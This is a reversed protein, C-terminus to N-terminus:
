EGAARRATFVAGTYPELVLGRLHGGEVRPMGAHRTGPKGEIRREVIRPRAAPQELGPEVRECTKRDDLRIVHTGDSWPVAIDLRHRHDSNNLVVVVRESGLTRSFAYLGKEDDMRLTEMTGLQLAPCTHRIAIMWRYHELVDAEIREEPDDNPPLDDWLMPKRCSPDDAGYMGVEDGYYVMPAGLATMQFTVLLKLRKYCDATPKAPNYNPGNDQLRNAQDYELDPNMFMSAVRDTDHSDFLNQLVYNVQPAYWGQMEKLQRDFETATIRKAHNVFFRQCSRAFPYNMVADFSRGDLWERSEQWLEAVIYADPNISKVLTRWDKWFNVNIDSAVDLRWGDIGDSPDGDGNPDMWRRTVAFLHERVEKALGLADDHKLRPLAGDDGDWAQYHFPKFSKIDFWGAYRSNKGHKLVDQFAWFERGVHNFVGDLIVKFGMRHAEALFELFVLDTKSWQWTAPDTTEGRVDKLSGKVGFFDDIHRFDSADYKHLSQAQFVPNFYIATIGLSRLYGLKERVGQLDGGYRRDYIFEEFTGRETYGQGGRPRYPKFWAHNWPVTSPPDNSPDGNRFREPFIQYWVVRKAWDPTRFSMSHDPEFYRKVTPSAHVGSADLTRTASGDRLRFAYKLGGQRATLQCSWMEFGHQGPGRQMPVAALSGAANGDPWDEPTLVDISQVDDALTRLGLRIVDDSIPSFYKARRADHQVAADAIADPKAPGLQAADPGVLLGSNFGGSRDPARYRSDASPDEVFDVGNVLFKYQYLGDELMVRVTYPGAPTVAYMPTAGPRWGNFDGVVEVREIPLSKKAWSGSPSWRFETAPLRADLEEPRVEWTRVVSAGDVENAGGVALRIRYGGPTSVTVRAKAKDADIVALEGGASKEVKWTFAKKAEPPFGSLGGDLVYEGPKEGRLVRVVAFPATPEAREHGWRKSAPDLWIRQAGSAHVVLAINGGPQEVRGNGADGLHRDWSGNFVFKFEYRGAPLFRVLEYRGAALTMRYASDGTTWNNFTGAVNIREGSSTRGAPEGRAPFLIALVILPAFVFGCRISKM